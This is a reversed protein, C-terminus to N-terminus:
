GRGDWAELTSSPLEGFLMRYDHAFHGPNLFGWRAALEMIRTTNPDATLLERRVGHLRRLKLFAMPGMGLQERFGQLLTRRGAAVQRCLADLTIPETPHDAMWRQAAKVLEIRAPPRALRQSHHGRRALAELLLPVLDRAMLDRMRPDHIVAPSREALNFIRRLCGRVRAFREPDLTQWNGQALTDELGPFGLDLGWQLFQRRDLSLLALNCHEPTTLHIEGGGALGFFAHRPLEEGHSRIVGQRPPAGLDLTILQRDTPKAGASHLPKDFRLRLVQLPGLDLPQLEGRLTGGALQTLEVPLLANVAQEMRVIDHISRCRAFKCKKLTGTAMAQEGHLPRHKQDQGTADIM